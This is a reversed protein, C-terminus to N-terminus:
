FVGFLYVGPIVWLGISVAAEVVFTKWNITLMEVKTFFVVWFTINWVSM